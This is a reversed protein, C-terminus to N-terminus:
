AVSPSAAPGSGTPSPAASSESVSIFFARSRSVLSVSGRSAGFDRQLPEVFASFTYASGFGLFTVAFAGAVVFWGYFIRFNPIAAEGTMVAETASMSTFVLIFPICTDM